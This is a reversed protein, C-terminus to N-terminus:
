RSVKCLRLTQSTWPIKVQLGIGLRIANSTSFGEISLDDVLISGSDPTVQGSLMKVLTSKGAGNEGIIAHITGSEISVSVSDNALLEGYKKTISDFTIKM